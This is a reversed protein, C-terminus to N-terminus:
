RTRAGCEPCVEHEVGHLDYGCKICLGRKHRILCRATFPGFMVLWLVASYFLTNIAFGTPQPTLPLLRPFGETYLSEEGDVAISEVYSRQILELKTGTLGGGTWREWMGGTMCTVPWGADIQVSAGHDRSNYWRVSRANYGFCGQGRVEPPTRGGSGRVDPLYMLYFNMAKRADPSPVVVNMFYVPELRIKALACGWAVTVNLVAGILLFVVLKFM